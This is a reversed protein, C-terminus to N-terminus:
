YSLATTPDSMQIVIENNNPEFFLKNNPTIVWALKVRSPTPKDACGDTCVIVGDWRGRNKPDNVYDVVAQFNTGGCRKREFPPFKGRDWTYMSEVDMETDFFAVDFTTIKSCDALVGGIRALQNDDVSGSQDVAFLIRPKRTRKLGAHVMPYKRDIRKISRKRDASQRFGTWNALVREWNITGRVLERIQRRLHEPMNGWGSSQSDAADVAKGLAYRIKAQVLDRLEEPVGDWSGHEIELEEMIENDGDGDGSGPYVPGKNGWDFGAQRSKERIAEFYYETSEEKPLSAIIKRLNEIVQRQQPKLKSSLPSKTMVGPILLGNAARAQTDCRTMLSNIALDMAVNSLSHPERGRSTVHSLYIHAHEHENVSAIHSDIGDENAQNFSKEAETALWELNYVIEVEETKPNYCAMATPNDGGYTSRKSFRKRIWRTFEALFPSTKMWSVLLMDQDINKVRRALMDAEAAVVDAYCLQTAEEETKGSSVLNEYQERRENGIREIVDIRNWMFCRKDKLALVLPAHINAIRDQNAQIRKIDQAQSDENHM